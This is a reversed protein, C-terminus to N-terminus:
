PIERAVVVTADDRGRSWDRYLVGAIVSPHQASLGPYSNLNWHTGVGDSHMILLADDPWPYSFQQFRRVTHGMIGNHSIMRYVKEDSQVLGVINGIGTYNIQRREPDIEALALAAGRTHTMAGHMAEMIEQLSEGVNEQFAGIAERAAMEAMPGHGLGDVVLVLQRGPECHTAWSDGCATEGTLPVNIGSVDLYRPHEMGGNRFRAVLATGKGPVTHIDWQDAVRVIAGLGNGPSGATSFGDALCRDLDEMGPGKDLSLIEMGPNMGSLPTILIEGGGAHKILNTGMEMVAIAARGATTEDFGTDRAMSRSIRRAEAVQSADQILLSISTVM